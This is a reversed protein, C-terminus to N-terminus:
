RKKQMVLTIPITDRVGIDVELKQSIYGARRLEVTSRGEPLYVLSVTGGAPTTAFTGTAVDVVDVGVLAEGSEADFAGLLRHRWAPLAPTGADTLAVGRDAVFSGIVPDYGVGPKLTVFVANQGRVMDTSKSDRCDVYNMEDIHEPRIKELASQVSVPVTMVGTYRPDRKAMSNAVARAGHRLQATKIALAPDIPPFAIRQGNIWLNYIGCRAFFGQGPPDMMDPRLKTVVDLGSLIPRSSAAIDESTVHYRKRNLDEGATVHMAPLEQAAAHLEIVVDLSDRDLRVFRSGRRYGLHRAALEVDGEGGVALVVIGHANAVGTAVSAAANRVVLVEAGAVPARATDIATVRVIHLKRQAAAPAALIVLMAFLRFLRMGM